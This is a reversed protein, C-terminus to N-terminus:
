KVPRVLVKLRKVEYRDGSKSFTWDPHGEPNTGIGIDPSSSKWNNIAFVTARPDIVHVQMCGYGNEKSSSIADGTDYESESAGPVNASNSASYNNPWFEINGNVGSKNPVGGVNSAVVLSSVGQQFEAGLGFVPLGILALKDTFADMSVYAWQPNDEGDSLEIYYAIRDFKKGFSKSNDIDYEIQPGLKRLDLEYILEYDKSEPVNLSLFDLKPPEGARFPSTPLGVSNVLNPVALKDWAFRVAVPKDIGEASVAVTDKSVVEAKAETWPQAEGALEFWNLAEGDRSKLGDAANDFTVLLKNGEVRMSKYRPGSDVIEKRGYDRKLAMNALRAGVDQKNRPHIDELNAIDNVVVMGTNDIEKEIAEQAEWLRALVQPNENGYRYPAIQVFYYPLDPKEWVQRWGLLLARTKELYMMGDARNAEGQYWISGRITYPTFPDMMGRYLTTPDQRDTYPVFQQPFPQPESILQKQSLNEEAQDAWQRMAKIYQEAATRYSVSDPQKSRIVQYLADLAPVQAFGTLPTWPEIRTGGWSCNVLGIPVDLEQHLKRGFFYGVATFDGVTEPSCVEWQTEIDDQPLMSPRHPADIHRILPWNADAVEQEANNVNEVRWEMNSQGSCLWVEGVLVDRVTLTEDGSKVILEAPEASAQLPKLNVRWEGEADATDSVSQGNFTVTVEDGADAWGWVAVPTGQQLVMHDSFIAPLRLPEAAVSTVLLACLALVFVSPAVLRKM